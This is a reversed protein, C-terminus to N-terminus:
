PWVLTKYIWGTLRPDSIKIWDGKRDVQKLIVDRVVKGVKDYQTGPGSRVNGDKVKVIVYRKKSVLSSYIWGKDTEYDSVKLWKGKHALVKLPYGAPLQFLIEYKTDPGSRLNVGNKIVSVFEVAMVSVTSACIFLAILGGVRVSQKLTRNEMRNEKDLM